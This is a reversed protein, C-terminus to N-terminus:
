KFKVETIHPNDISVKLKAIDKLDILTSIGDVDLKLREKPQTDVAIGEIVEGQKMTLKIPYHFLCVLEIVDYQSCSLM